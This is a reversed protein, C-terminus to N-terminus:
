APLIDQKKKYELYAQGYFHGMVAQSYAITFIMGIVCAVIGLPAILSTVLVGLFVLLYAGFNGKLMAFIKNLNFAAGLSEEELYLSYAAPIVLAILVGYIVALLGFCSYVVTLLVLLGNSDGNISVINNMIGLFSSILTIPLAYVFGIVFGMFGRALDDGFNIDPLVIPNLNMVRKTINLAWGLVVIEGIIPILLVLGAIAIKKLWDPDDFVFSFAKGFDM